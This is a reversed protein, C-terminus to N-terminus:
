DREQNLWAQAQREFVQIFPKLLTVQWCFFFFFSQPFEFNLLFGKQCSGSLHLPKCISFHKSIRFYNCTVSCYIFSTMNTILSRSTESWNPQSFLSPGPSLSTLLWPFSTIVLCVCLILRCLIFLLAVTKGFDANVFFKFPCDSRTRRSKIPGSKFLM